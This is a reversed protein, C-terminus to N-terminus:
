QCQINFSAQNSTLMQPDTIEISEWGSFAEGAGGLDWTTSIDQSGPGDFSITQIPASAGDSRLFQYSVNGSGDVSIRGSFTIRVPCSGVYDVPDAQLFAETVQLGQPAPPTDTPIIVPASAQYHDPCRGGPEMAYTYIPQASDATTVMLGVQHQRDVPDTISHTHEIVQDIVTPLPASFAQDIQGGGGWTSWVSYSNIGADDVIRIHVYLTLGAGCEVSVIQAIPTPTISPISPTFTATPLQYHGPCRGGPEMAYTFIPQANDPTTVRLGVQHSRDVSDPFVHEHIVVEDIVTPLPASFTREIEGGGGWTSWVSYSRIGAENTIQIHVRLTLGSGCEVSVIQAVPISTHPSEASTETWTPTPSLTSTPFPTRTSATTPVPQVPPPTFTPPIIASPTPMDSHTFEQVSTSTPPQFEVQPPTFLPTAQGVDMTSYQPARAQTAKSADNLANSVAMSATTTVAIASAVLIIKGTTSGVLFPVLSPVNLMLWQSLGITATTTFIGLSINVYKKDGVLRVSKIGFQKLRDDRNLARTKLAFAAAAPMDVFVHTGSTLNTIDLQSPSTETLLSILNLMQERKKTGFEVPKVKQFVLEAQRVTQGDAPELAVLHEKLTDILQRVGRELSSKQLDIHQLGVLQYQMEAPLKVSDLKIIFIQRGSGQSLDIEKRVNDSVASNSSLMLVFADCGDIAQVIQVRWTKGPKIAERDIWVNFGAEQMKEVIQDVIKADRRSYSIFIHGM